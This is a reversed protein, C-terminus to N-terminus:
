CRCRCCTERGCGSSSSNAVLIPVRYSIASGKSLGRHHWDHCLPPCHCHISSLSSLIVTGARVTLIIFIRAPLRHLRLCRSFIYGVLHAVFHGDRLLFPRATVHPTLLEGRRRRRNSAAKWNAVSSVENWRGPGDSIQDLGFSYMQPVIALSILPTLLQASHIESDDPM